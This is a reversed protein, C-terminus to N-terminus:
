FFRRAAQEAYRRLTAVTAVHARPLPPSAPSTKSVVMDSSVQWRDARRALLECLGSFRRVMWPDPLASDPKLLEFNHSVIVFDSHGLTEASHMAAGLEALGCAGVQAPRLRGLGDQFVTIPFSTVEGVRVQQQGAWDRGTATATGVDPGSVEFCENLSSDVRLGNRALARYTASNAAYSGARFMTMHAAGAQTLLDKGLAILATQEDESYYSLHQRKGLNKPLPHPEIEDTWEPHLHLQVNHGRSQILDVITRLYQPGFRASFLPEVFFIGKLGHKDMLDLTAPLAYDGQKSRGYVYREYSAPFREDLHDWGGCWVEIDFTLYVKM